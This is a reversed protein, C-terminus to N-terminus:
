QEVEMMIHYETNDDGNEARIEAVRATAEELTDGVYWEIEIPNMGPYEDRDYEMVVNYRAM